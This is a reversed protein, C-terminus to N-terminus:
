QRSLIAPIAAKAANQAGFDKDQAAIAQYANLNAKTGIIALAKWAAERNKAVPDTIHKAVEQEGASGIMEVYKKAREQEFFNNMWLAIPWYGREDKLAILAEIAFWTHDWANNQNSAISVLTMVNDKTGWTKAAKAGAAVVERKQEKLLPELGVSVEARKGENVPMESLALAAGQKVPLNPNSLCKVIEPLATKEVKKLGQSAYSKFDNITMDQCFVPVARDDGLDVLFTVMLTRLERPQQWDGGNWKPDLLMEVLTPVNANTGWVKVAKIANNRVGNNVDKLANNLALAVAEKQAPIAKTLALYEGAATRRHEDPSRLEEVAQKVIVQDSTGYGILLQQARQRCGQDTHFRYKVVETECGKGLTQLANAANQGRGGWDPLQAALTPAVSTDGLRALTRIVDASVAPDDVYRKLTPINDKGAWVALAKASAVKVQHNVDTLRKELAGAVAKQQSPVVAMEALAKAGSEKRRPDESKLDDLADAVASNEKGGDKDKDKDKDSSSSDSSSGSGKFYFYGGVGLGGCVLLMVFGIVLLMGGGLALWKGKGAPADAEAEAVAEDLDDLPGMQVTSKKRLETGIQKSDPPVGNASKAADASVPFTAACQKCRVNKGALKENLNYTKGCSPCNMAITM